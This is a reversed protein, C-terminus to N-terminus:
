RRPVGHHKNWTSSEVREISNRVVEVNNVAVPDKQANLEALWRQWLTITFAKKEDVSAGRRRIKNPDGTRYWRVYHM